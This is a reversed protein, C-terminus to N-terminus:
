ARYVVGMGGRAIEGLLEYDGLRTGDIPSSPPSPPAPRSRFPLSGAPGSAVVPPLLETQPGIGGASSCTPCASETPGTSSGAPLDNGCRPCRHPSTAVTEDITGPM